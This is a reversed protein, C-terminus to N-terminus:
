EQKRIAGRAQDARQSCSKLEHKSGSPIGAVEGSNHLVCFVEPDRIGHNRHQKTGRGAWPSKDSEFDSSGSNVARGPNAKERNLVTPAVNVGGTIVAGINICSTRQRNGANWPRSWAANSETPVLLWAAGSKLNAAAANM